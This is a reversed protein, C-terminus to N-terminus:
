RLQLNILYIIQGLAALLVVSTIAVRDGRGGGDMSRNLMLGDYGRSLMARYIREGRDYTRIFLSGIMHGVVLRQWSRNAMLNRSLAARRMSEFEDVLVAIYRYMSALIAVLLPPLGLDVMGQLLATVSTTLILINMILLSLLAKVSVSGLVTLGESTIRLWGWQWLVQGGDRFLTGLLVVGIFVFEASVRKLLVPLTVQSIVGITWIGLGYILWTAWRGNPTLAVAFVLLVACLLRTKPALRHWPTSLQSNVDFQFAGIHLLVM